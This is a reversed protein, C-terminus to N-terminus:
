SNTKIIAFPLAVDLLVDLSKSPLGLMNVYVLGDRFASLLLFTPLTNWFGACSPGVPALM